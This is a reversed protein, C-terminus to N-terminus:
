PLLQEGVGDGSWGDVHLLVGQGSMTLAAAARWGHRREMQQHAVLNRTREDEPCCCSGSGIEAGDTKM